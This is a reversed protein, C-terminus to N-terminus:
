PLIWRKLLLIPSDTPNIRALLADADEKSVKAKEVQRQVQKAISRKAKEAQELSLDLLLVQYGKHAAVQAIGSGMQGAGLVAVQKM